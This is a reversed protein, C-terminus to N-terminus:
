KSKKIGDAYTKCIRLGYSRYVGKLECWIMHDGLKHKNSHKCNICEVAKNNAM